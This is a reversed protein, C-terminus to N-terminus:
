ECTVNKFYRKVLKAASASGKIYIVSDKGFNLAKGIRITYYLIDDDSVTKIAEAAQLGNDFVRFYAVGDIIRIYINRNDDHDSCLLPTTFKARTGFKDIIESLAKRAVAMVAITDAQMESCVVTEDDACSLGVASLYNAACSEDFAKRPVLTVKHTEVIFSIGTDDNATDSALSAASFSHGGLKLQISVDNQRASINNGTEQKM